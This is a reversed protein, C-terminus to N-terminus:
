CYPRKILKQEEITFVLNKMRGFWQSIRSAKRVNEAWNAKAVWKIPTSIV